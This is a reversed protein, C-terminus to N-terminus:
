RHEVNFAHQSETICQENLTAIQSDKAEGRNHQQQRMTKIQVIGRFNFLLEILCEPNKKDQAQHCQHQAPDDILKRIEERAVIGSDEAYQDEGHRQETPSGSISPQYTLREESLPYVHESCTLAGLTQYISQATGAQSNFDDSPGSIDITLKAQFGYRGMQGCQSLVPSNM